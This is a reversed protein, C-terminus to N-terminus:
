PCGMSKLLLKTISQKEKPPAAILNFVQQQTVECTVDSGLVVQKKEPFWELLIYFMSLGKLYVM